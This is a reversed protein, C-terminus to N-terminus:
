HEVFVAASDASGAASRDCPYLYLGAVESLLGCGQQYATVNLGGCCYSIFLLLKCSDPLQYLLVASHDTGGVTM